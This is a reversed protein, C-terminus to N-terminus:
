KKGASKSAKDFFKDMTDRQQTSDVYRFGNRLVYARGDDFVVTVDVATGKEGAPTTVKISRDSAVVVATAAHSGFRVMVGSRPFNAGRLEVEEGGTFTGTNPEVETFRTESSCGAGMALALLAGVSLWWRILRM